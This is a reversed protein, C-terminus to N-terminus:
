PVTSGTKDHVIQVLYYKDNSLYLSIRFIKAVKMEKSVLGFPSVGIAIVQKIASFATM